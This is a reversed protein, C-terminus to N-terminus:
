SVRHISINGVQCTINNKSNSEQWTGPEVDQADGDERGGVDVLRIPFMAVSLSFNM